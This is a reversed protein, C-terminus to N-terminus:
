RQCACTSCSPLFWRTSTYGRSATYSYTCGQSGNEYCYLGSNCKCDGDYDPGTSTASPCISPPPAPTPVPEPTPPPGGEGVYLLANTDGARLDTLANMVANDVLAQIVAASNKTPDAELVLAAAGSVHPCAMSTGSMTASGTDSRHSASTVDSGPAWIDTCAGYNSFSSRKDRSTTSGVTIASPVFAPSFNCADSNSNGGAVVVTVGSTVAADVADKMAQQTGSGGLSMSAVAPRTEHTALWNLAYYSWSWSGSGQDSLVKVSRIAAQPAVGFTEGAATGACHTGHGQADGACTMDGNCEVPDGITMDLAGVARGGFDRHSVRVGTDLIFVTAGAGESGRLDAGIRNLGWTAAEVDDAEIEPIMHVTQDPEVYRVAGHSDHIVAELDKETGRMELFPVGGKQPSGVLNCANKNTKCMAQIQKDSTGPNVVVVWEQEKQSELEGLSSEGNYAGDYNLVPVGAIFKTATTSAGRKRSVRAGEAGLLVFAASGLCRSLAVMAGSHFFCQKILRKCL